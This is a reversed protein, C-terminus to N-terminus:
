RESRVLQRSRENVQHELDRYIERLRQTMDNFARALGELEDGSTVEIRHDFEGRALRGAGAELAQIPAFMWGYYFRFLAALILVGGVGTSCVIWLTLQFNQRADKSRDSFAEYIQGQLDRTDQKLGQIDRGIDADRLLEPSAANPVVSAATRKQNVT